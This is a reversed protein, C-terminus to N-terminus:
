QDLRKICSEMAKKVAESHAEDSFAHYRVLPPSFMQCAPGNDVNPWQGAPWRPDDYITEDLMVMDAKFGGSGVLTTVTLPAVGPIVPIAAILKLFNRRTNM